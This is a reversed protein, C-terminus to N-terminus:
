TSWATGGIRGGLEPCEGSFVGWSCEFGPVVWDHLMWIDELLTKHGGAAECQAPTSAEGAVVVGGKLCLGGNHNHQHWHDNGGVFGEPAGGPHFVLYSLGVIRADPTSGDYLLESPASPDFKAVLGVNTYHAGICPVYVTSMRYGAKEADAVTPYKVAVARAQVQEKQLSMRQAQSLPVQKVMGREGHEGAQGPSAPPGSKECPSDGTATGKLVTPMHMGRMDHGNPDATTSTPKAITVRNAKPARATAKAKSKQSSADAKKDSGSGCSALLLVGAVVTCVLIHPASRSRVM